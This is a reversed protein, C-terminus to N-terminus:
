KPPESAATLDGKKYVIQGTGKLPKSEYVRKMKGNEMTDILLKLDTKDNTSTVTVESIFQCPIILNPGDNDRELDVGSANYKIHFTADKEGVGDLAMRFQQDEPGKWGLDTSKTGLIYYTGDIVSYAMQSTLSSTDSGSSKSTFEIQVIGMPKATLEYRRGYAIIPKEFDIASKALALKNLPLPELSISKLTAQAEAQLTTDEEKRDYDSMGQKWTLADLQKEIQKPDKSAYAARVAAVFADKSTPPAAFCVQSFLSLILVPVPFKMGPNLIFASDRFM